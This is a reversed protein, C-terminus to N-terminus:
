AECQWLFQAYSAQIASDDPALQLAQTYLQEARDADGLKRWARAALQGLKEANRGAEQLAAEFAAVMESKGMQVEAEDAADDPDVPIMSGAM